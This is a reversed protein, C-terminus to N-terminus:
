RAPKAGKGMGDWVVHVKGRVGVALHAGRISGAAIASGSQTNVRIPRSFSDNEAKRSVYLIDGAAAEGKYYILHVTGSDDVVAQPQIGADPTRLLTVKSASEARANLLILVLALAPFIPKTFM